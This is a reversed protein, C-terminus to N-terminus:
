VFKATYHCLLSVCKLFLDHSLDNEEDDHDASPDIEEDDLVKKWTVTASVGLVNPFLRFHTPGDTRLAEPLQANAGKEYQDWTHALFTEVNGGDFPTVHLTITKERNRDVTVNFSIKIQDQKKVVQTPDLPMKDKGM